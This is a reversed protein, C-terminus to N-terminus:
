SALSGSIAGVRTRARSGSGGTRAARPEDASPWAQAASVDMEPAGAGSALAAADGADGRPWAPAPVPASSCACRIFARDAPRLRPRQHQRGLVSLQGQKPVFDLAGERTAAQALASFAKMTDPIDQRLKRLDGSIRKTIDSYSKEM